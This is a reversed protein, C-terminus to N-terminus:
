PGQRDAATTSEAAYPRVCPDQAVSASFMSEFDGPSADPGPIIRIARVIKDDSGQWWRLLDNTNALAPSVIFGSRAVEPLLRYRLVHGDKTTVEILLTPARLVLLKLKGLVSLAIDTRLWVAQADSAPLSLPDGLKLERKKGYALADCTAPHENRVMLVYGKEWLLPKYANLVYPITLADDELPLRNDITQLKFLLWPPAKKSAYFANNLRTLDQSYASYGQFVPRPSVNFDNIYAVGQEYSFIDVPDHGIKEAIIPLSALRAYSDRRVDLTSELSKTSGIINLAQSIWASTAHLQLIVNFAPQAILLILFSTAIGLWQPIAIWATKRDENKTLRCPLLSLVIIEAVPFIFLHFRDARTYASKFSVLLCIAAGAMLAISIPRRKRQLSAIIFTCLSFALAAIGLADIEGDAPPTGMTMAYGRAILLSNHIYPMIGSIHEGCIHWAWLPMGIALLLHLAALRRKEAITLMIAGSAAWVAWIPLLSAKILPMLAPFLALLAVAFAQFASAQPHDILHSIAILAIAPCTLWVIDGPLLPGFCTFAAALPLLYAPKANALALWLSIGYLLGSIAQAALYAGFIGPTYGLYPTVFGLPGYTFILDSGWQAKQLLGHALVSAWSSDLAVDAVPHGPQLILLFAFCAILFRLAQNFWETSVSQKLLGPIKAPSYTRENLDPNQRM